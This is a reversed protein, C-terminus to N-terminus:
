LRSDATVTLGLAAALPAATQRARRLDSTFMTRVPRDRLPSAITRAQRRGRRTLRAEDNHGQALGLRNWTSEGHRGLWLVPRTAIENTAPATDTYPASDIM